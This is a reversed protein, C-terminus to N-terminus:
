QQIQSPDPKKFLQFKSPTKIMQSGTNEGPKTIKKKSLYIPNANTDLQKLMDNYGSKVANM